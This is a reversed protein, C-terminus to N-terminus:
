GGREQKIISCYKQKEIITVSNVIIFINCKQTASVKQKNTLGM